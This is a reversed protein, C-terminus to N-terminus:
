AFDSPSLEPNFALLEARIKDSVKHSAAISPGLRLAGGSGLYFNGVKGPVTLVTYKSSRAKPDLKMGKALLAALFRDHLTQKAM